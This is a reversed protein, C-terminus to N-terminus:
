LQASALLLEEKCQLLNFANPSPCEEGEQPQLLSSIVPVNPIMLPPLTAIKNETVKGKWFGVEACLMKLAPRFVAAELKILSSTVMSIISGSESGKQGLASILSSDLFDADGAPSFMSRRSYMRGSTEKLARIEAEYEDVQSQLM